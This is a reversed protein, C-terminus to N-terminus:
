EKGATVLRKFDSLKSRVTLDLQEHPMVVRVGGILEPVLQEGVKISKAHPYEEKLIAKVDDIEAQSVDHASVLTAEVLGHSARFEIVDRMIPELESVRNETILYAAIEKALEKSDTITLTRTGIAEVLLRRPQKM